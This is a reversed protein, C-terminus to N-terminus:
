ARLIQHRDIPASVGAPEVEATPHDDDVRALLSWGGDAPVPLVRNGDM